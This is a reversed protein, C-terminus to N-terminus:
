PNRLKPKQALTPKASKTPPKPSTAPKAKPAPRMTVNRPQLAQVEASKIDPISKTRNDRRRHRIDNAERLSLMPSSTKRLAAESKQSGEEQPQSPLVPQVVALLVSAISQGVIGPESTDYITPPPPPSPSQRPLPEPQRGDTVTIYTHNVNKNEEVINAEAHKWNEVSQPTTTNPNIYSPDTAWKEIAQAYGCGSAPRKKAPSKGQVSAAQTAFVAYPSVDVGRQAPEQSSEGAVDEDMEDADSSQSLVDLRGDVYDVEEYDELEQGMVLRQVLTPVFADGSEGDMKEKHNDGGQPVEADNQVSNALQKAEADSISSAESIRRAGPWEPIDYISPSLSYGTTHRCEVTDYLPESFDCVASSDIVSEM